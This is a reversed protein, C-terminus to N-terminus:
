SKWAETKDNTSFPYYKDGLAKQPYYYTDMFAIKKHNGEM